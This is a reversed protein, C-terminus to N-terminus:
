GEMLTALEASSISSNGHSLITKTFVLPSYSEIQTAGVSPFTRFDEECSIFADHNLLYISVVLSFDYRASAQELSTIISAATEDQHDIIVRVLITDVGNKSTFSNPDINRETETIDDKTVVANAACVVGNKEFSDEICKEITNMVISSAYDDVINGNHDITATFVIESNNVPHVYTTATSTNLRNGIHTVEFAEGYKEELAKCVDSATENNIRSCASMTVTTLLAMLIAVAKRFYYNKM